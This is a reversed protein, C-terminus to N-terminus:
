RTRGDLVIDKITQLRETWESRRLDRLAAIGAAYRDYDAMLRRVGARISSETADVHVTGDSFYSRLLPWDSTIIPRALGLAECAGRQMTHNRITLCVVADASALLRVYEPRPLFDTFRVNPAANAVVDEHRAVAGTVHFTVDPLLAAARLLADLPEDAAWTNVVAINFGDAVLGPHRGPVPDDHTPADPVVLVRVGDARLQEAWYDDTVFTVMARRAVFRNLWRPRTWRARGFADSHQDIVFRGGRLATYLAAVWVAVTPPSQVFVLRPRYRLFAASTRWLHQLYKTPQARFGSRWTTLTFILHRIGLERALAASRPGKRPPGWVLFAARALM